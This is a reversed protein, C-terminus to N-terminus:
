SSLVSQIAQLITSKKSDNAGILCITTGEIEWELSKIGRFNDIKLYKILM